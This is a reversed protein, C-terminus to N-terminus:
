CTNEGIVTIPIKLVEFEDIFAKQLNRIDITKNITFEEGVPYTVSVIGLNLSAGRANLFTWEGTQERKEFLPLRGSRSWLRGKFKDERAAKLVYKAAYYAAKEPSWLWKDKGRKDRDSVEISINGNWRRQCLVFNICDQWLPRLVQIPMYEFFFVHYHPFGRKTLEVFRIFGAKRIRPALGKCRRLETIFKHWVRQCTRVDLQGSNRADTRFDFTFLRIHQYQSLYEKLAYKLRRVKREGCYDCKYAKCQARVLEGTNKNFFYLGGCRPCHTPKLDQSIDPQPLFESLHNAPREAKQTPNGNQNTDLSM